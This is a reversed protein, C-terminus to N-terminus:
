QPAPAPPPASGEAKPAAEKEGGAAPKGPAETTAPGAQASAKLGEKFIPHIKRWVVPPETGQKRSLPYAGMAALISRHREPREPGMEAYYMELSLPTCM